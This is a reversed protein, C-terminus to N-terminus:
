LTPVQHRLSQAEPGWGPEAGCPLWCRRQACTHLPLSAGPARQPPDSTPWRRFRVGRPNVAGCHPRAERLPWRALRPLTWAWIHAPGQSGPEGCVIAAVSAQTPTCPGRLARSAALRRGTDPGTRGSRKAQAGPRPNPLRLRSGRERDPLDSRRPGQAGPPGHAGEAARRCGPRLPSSATPPRKEFCGEKWHM